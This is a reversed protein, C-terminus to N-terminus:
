TGGPSSSRSSSKRCRMARYAITPARTEAGPGLVPGPDLGRTRTERGLDVVTPAPSSRCVTLPKPKM